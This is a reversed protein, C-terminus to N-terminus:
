SEWGPVLAQVSKKLAAYGKADIVILKVKPHYKAMRKIKTVSRDDMWGKVEHYAISGGVEQVRFDPLYSVCGRKIGDFWFTEPEHAWGAIEGRELLWQLYHAYNAEWKSRYYKKIGGIERWGAKWSAGLRAPAMTGNAARTKLGKMIMEDRQKKTLSANWMASTAALRDKTQSTHKMGLAGRTHGNAAIWAKVRISTYAGRDEPSDFKRVRIRRNEPAKLDRSMDTLGLARAKRCINSKLRGLKTSLADLGIDEGFIASEYAQRLISVDGDTWKTEKDTLGLRWCRNRVSASTKGINASIESHSMSQFTSRLYEDLEPTWGKSRNPNLKASPWPLNFTIM